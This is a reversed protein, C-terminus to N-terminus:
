PDRALRFGLSGYASAPYDWDRDASRAGDAGLSWAGGRLVQGSCDGANDERWASGDFPAGEYTEHWCDATWEWLSGAMDYLGFANPRYAAARQAGAQGDACPEPPFTTGFRPLEARLVSDNVNAFECAPGPDDGWFWPTDSGARAAYEWEAESPLRYRAGTRRSLWEAYAAADASSVCAVPAADTSPMGPERWSRDKRPEFGTQEENLSNCGGSSEQEASTVYGTAEVFRRFEAVTVECRMLAFPQVTVEHRPQEDRAGSSGMVFRGGPILVM